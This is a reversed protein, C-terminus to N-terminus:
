LVSANKTGSLDALKEVLDRESDTLSKPLPIEVQVKVLHDGRKDSQGLVPVGKKAM